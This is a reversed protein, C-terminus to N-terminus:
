KKGNVQHLKEFAQNNVTDIFPIATGTMGDVTQLAWILFNLLLSM